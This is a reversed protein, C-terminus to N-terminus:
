AQDRHRPSRLPGRRRRVRAQPRPRQGRPRRRCQQDDPPRRDHRRRPARRDRGAARLARRTRTARCAPVDGAGLGAQRHLARRRRARQADRDAADQCRRVARIRGGLSGHPHPAIRPHGALARARRLGAPVPGRSRRAAAGGTRHKGLRRREPREPRGPTLGAPLGTNSVVIKGTVDLDKYPDVGRSRIVTGNGIYVVPGEATGPVQGPLFDDGYVLTRKGVALSTKEVDVRRQTLAISQLYTGDDGAPRLGLRAM